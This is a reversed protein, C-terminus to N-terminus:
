NTHSQADYLSYNLDILQCEYITKNISKDRYPYSVLGLYMNPMLIIEEEPRSDIVNVYVGFTEKPVFIKLLNNEGAYSESSYVIKKLLSTSMFGKEQTPMPFSQKNREILLKTFNDNTIRYVILNCPIRPASCLTISLIDALERYTHIEDDDGNRLFNNIRQYEYGCYCEIPITCLNGNVAPKSAAMIDKYKISWDKYHTSGWKQADEHNTLELYSDKNDIIWNLKGYKQQKIKDTCSNM